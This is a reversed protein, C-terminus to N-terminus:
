AGHPARWVSGDLLFGVQARRRPEIRVDCGVSAHPAISAYGLRRRNLATLVFRAEVAKGPDASLMAPDDAQPATFPHHMAMWRKAGADFEFMPFDVVWLPRWGDEVLKLDQGVKLRLAGLADSVVKASDAGFFVLDNDAAGTRELIGAIAEDSLFKLIPSQLGDRGRARENVKIYALGKAGYRGVFATYADIESRSFAGGGPARLAAVRGNPDKAPGAFVKFDCGAVLDAVDVTGHCACIPKTRGM